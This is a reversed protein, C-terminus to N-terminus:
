PSFAVRNAEECDVIPSGPEIAVEAQAHITHKITRTKALISEATLTVAHERLAGPPLGYFIEQYLQLQARDHRYNRITALRSENGRECTSLAEEHQRAQIQHLALVTAALGQQQDRLQSQAGAVDGLTIAVGVLIPLLLMLVILPAYRDVFHLGKTLLAIM